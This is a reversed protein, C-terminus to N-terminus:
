NIDYIRKAHRFSKNGFHHVDASCNTASQKRSHSLEYNERLKTDDTPRTAYDTYRSAVAPPPSIKRVQGYRCQPGGLTRYLSCRTKGPPLSRGPCSASGEGGELAMTM